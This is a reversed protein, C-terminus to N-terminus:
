GPDLTAEAHVQGTM